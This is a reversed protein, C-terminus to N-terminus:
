LSVRICPNSDQPKSRCEALEARLHEIEEWASNRQAVAAKHFAGAMTLDARLGRLAKAGEGKRATETALALMAALVASPAVRRAAPRPRAKEREVAAAIREEKSGRQKAQGM